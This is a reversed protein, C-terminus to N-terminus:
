WTGRTDVRGEPWPIAEDGDRLPAVYFFEPGGDPHFYGFREYFAAQELGAFLAAFDVTAHTAAEEHASRILASAYGRGRCDPDTCVNMVAAVTATVAASSIGSGPETPPYIVIRRYDLCVLARVHAAGGDIEEIQFLQKGEPLDARGFCAYLLEDRNM